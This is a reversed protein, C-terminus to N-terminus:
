QAYPNSASGFPGMADSLRGIQRAPRPLAAALPQVARAARGAGYAVEGMLRPSMTPLAAAAGSAAAPAGAVLGAAIAPVDAAAVFRGLGRPTWPRLAQGALKEMLHPAGANVLYNALEARRGFSTNVNDRLTSQLKRLATDISANPKTSLTTEIEKIQKSAQEYGKMVKAYDPAQDVITQRAGHYARDAVVREPTNPQTADRIDGIKQKLADLGEATHFEAPDLARWEEVADAIQHRIGQTSPSIDQGKYTKVGDARRMADDIKDFNLVKQDMGISAMGERYANGRQNRMQQVANRADNVAEELPARGTLNERFSRAAEGGEYGANAAVRFPQGGAGTTVGAIESATKGAFNGAAKAVPAAALIPDLARGATAAIEGTKGAIGPARAALSGGGTLLVSLDGAMGVPDQEFTQRAKDLGGYRDSFFKGVADAYKEHEDGSVIGAKELVGLGLNKLGVATDIPHIIPQVTNRAFEAASHPINRMATYTTKSASDAARNAWNVGPSFQGGNGILPAGVDPLDKAAAPQKISWPADPLANAQPPPSAWPADPLDDAM